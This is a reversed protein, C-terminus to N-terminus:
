RDDRGLAALAPIWRAAHCGQTGAWRAARAASPRSSLRHPPCRPEVVVEWSADKKEGGAKEEIAHRMLIPVQALMFLFTLIVTGPFKFDVWLDTSFNRRVIENLLALALFFIGLRLTLIRWGKE